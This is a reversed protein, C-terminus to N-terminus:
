SMNVGPEPVLRWHLLQLCRAQKFIWRVQKVSWDLNGSRPTKLGKVAFM